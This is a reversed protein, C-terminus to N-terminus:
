GGAAQLRIRVCNGLKERLRVLMMYVASASKGAEEALQKVRGGGTYPALLLERHGSSFEALCGDFAQRLEVLENADSEEAVDALSRLVEDSLVPRTRRLKAALSLCKFRVIM